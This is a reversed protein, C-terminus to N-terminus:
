ARDHPSSFMHIAHKRRENAEPYSLEPSSRCARFESAFRIGAQAVVCKGAHSRFGIRYGAFHGPAILFLHDRAVAVV